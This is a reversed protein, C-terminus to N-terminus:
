RIFVDKIINAVDCIKEGNLCWIEVADDNLRYYGISNNKHPFGYEKSRKIKYNDTLCSFEVTSTGTYQKIPCGPPNVYLSSKIKIGSEILYPRLLTNFLGYFLVVVFLIIPIIGIKKIM